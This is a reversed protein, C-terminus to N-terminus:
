DSKSADEGKDLNGYCTLLDVITLVLFYLLVLTFPWVCLANHEGELNPERRNHRTISYAHKLNLFYVSMRKRANNLGTRVRWEQASIPM